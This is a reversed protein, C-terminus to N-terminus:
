VGDELINEIEFILNAIQKDNTKINALIGKPPLHVVEVAKTPNKASIDFDEIKNVLVTWSKETKSRKPYLEVFEKLHDYLIPKNKTLKYPPEVEYYWIDAPTM